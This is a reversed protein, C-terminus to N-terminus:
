AILRRTYAAWEVLLLLAGILLLLAWPEMPFQRSATAAVSERDGLRSHNIDAQRPDLVNAIVQIRAGDGRVTYVDPRTAEFVIGDATEVAPVPLGAGDRVQAHAMPVDVRGLPRLLPPAPDTLWDLANGLFVLFGPQLPLNSDQPSFGVVIWPVPARRAAILAGQRTEVVAEGPQVVAVRAHGVRLDPWNMGMSLAHAAQWRTIDPEASERWRAPLWPVATPRFLLAGGPPPAAPAFGDFVYADAAGAQAYGAPKVITLRVGPLARLSDQLRPNGNSVLLVRRPRHAAVRAFALDDLPLADGAASAAAGLIGGEFGTIEFSADILEGAAMTLDQALSFHEGGRLTLRVQKPGPSANYVQVFAESRTADAPFPRAQLGTLAVNDAPEFVSHVIM